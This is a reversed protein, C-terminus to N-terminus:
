KKHNFYNRFTLLHLENTLGNKVSEMLGFDKEKREMNTLTSGRELNNGTSGGEMTCEVMQGCFSVKEKVYM